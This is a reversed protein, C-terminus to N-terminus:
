KWWGSTTISVDMVWLDTKADPGEGARQFYSLRKGDPSWEVGTTMNGTLGAQGGQPGFIREVTLAKPAQGFAGAAALLM